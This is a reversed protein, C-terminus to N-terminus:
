ESWAAEDFSRADVKLYAIREGGGRASRARGAPRRPPPRARGGAVTWARVTFTRTRVPAPGAHRDGGRAVRASCGASLFVAAGGFQQLHLRGPDRGRVHGPVARQQIRGPGDGEAPPASELDPVAADSGARQLRHLLRAACARRAVPGIGLVLLIQSRAARASAGVFVIKVHGRRECSSPPCCSCSRSCVVPLYIYWTQSLALGGELVFPIVVWVSMLSAHVAFIGFNLRVLDPERLVERFKAPEM